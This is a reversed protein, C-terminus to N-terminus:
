RTSSKSENSKMGLKFSDLFFAWWFGAIFFLLAVPVAYFKIVCDIYTNTFPDDKDKLWWRIVAVCVACIIFWHVFWIM